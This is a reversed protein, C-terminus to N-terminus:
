RTSRTSRLEEKLRAVFESDYPGWVTDLLVTKSQGRLLYANYSSGHGTSLENGHFSTLEWDTKGVWSINDTIKKAM